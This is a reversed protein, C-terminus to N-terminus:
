TEPLAVEMKQRKYESPTKGTNKKFITNFSTKSNFGADLGIALLTLHEKKPDALNNIVERVRYSNIFDHFNKGTQTNIVESLHHPTVDLLDALDRLTLNSDRYVRDSEMKHLLAKKYQLAQAPKLGSKEYKQNESIGIQTSEMDELVDNRHRDGLVPSKLIGMYGMSYVYAVSLISSLIFGSSNLYILSFLNEIMFIMHCTIAFYTLTSLWSVKLKELNSFVDKIRKRYSSLQRVSLVYYCSSYLIYVWNFAIFGSREHASIFDTPALIGVSQLVGYSLLLLTPAFHLYETKQFRKPQWVLYKTYLYHFPGLLFIINPLLQRILLQDYYPKEGLYIHILTLSLVTTLGVLFRNPYFHLYRSSILVTIFIGQGASILLVSNILPTLDVSEM